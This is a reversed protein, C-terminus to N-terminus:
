PTFGSAWTAFSSKLQARPTPSGPKDAGGSSYAVGFGGETNSGLPEASVNRHQYWLVPGKYSKANWWAFWETVRSAYTQHSVWLSTDGYNVYFPGTDKSTWGVETAWMKMTTEGNTVKLQQLYDCKRSSAFTVSPDIGDEVSPKHPWSYPHVGWADYNGKCGAAYMATWYDRENRNGAGGYPALGATIVISGIGLEASARKVGAYVPKLWRNVYDAASITPKWFITNNPENGAEYATVGQPLYRKAVQYAFEECATYTGSVPAVKDDSSGGNVWSPWYGLMAMPYLGANRQATVKSDTTGWSFSGSTPEIEKMTFDSRVYGAPVLDALLTTDGGLSGVAIGGYRATAILPGGTGGSGGSSSISDSMSAGDTRSQQYQYAPPGENGVKHRYNRPM